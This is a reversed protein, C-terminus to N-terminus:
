VDRKEHLSGRQNNGVVPKRDSRNYRVFDAYIHFSGMWITHLNLILKNLDDVDLFRAFGFRYVSRSLRKAIYINSVKGWHYCTKWVDRVTADLPINTVFVSSSVQELKKSILTLITVRAAMIWMLITQMILTLGGQNPSSGGGDM